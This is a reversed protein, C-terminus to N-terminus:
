DDEAFRADGRAPAGLRERVEMLGERLTRSKADAEVLRDVMWAVMEDYADDGDRLREVTEIAHEATARDRRFGHGIAGPMMEFAAHLLYMALQRAHSETQDGRSPRYLASPDLDFVLGVVGSARRARDSPSTLEDIM